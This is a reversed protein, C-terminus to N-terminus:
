GSTRKEGGIRGVHSAFKSIGVSPNRKETYGALKGNNVIKQNWFFIHPYVEIMDALLRRFKLLFAKNILM